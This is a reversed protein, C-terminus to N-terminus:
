KCPELELGYATGTFILANLFFSQTVLYIEFLKAFILLDLGM